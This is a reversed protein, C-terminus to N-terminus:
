ASPSQPPDIGFPDDNSTKKTKANKIRYERRSEVEGGGSVEDVLGFLQADTASISNEGEFLSRCLLVTFYWFLRAQPYYPAVLNRKDELTSAQGLEDSMSRGFFTFDHSIMMQVVMEIHRSDKLGHILDFDRQMGEFGGSGISWASDLSAKRLVIELFLKLDKQLEPNLMLEVQRPNDKQSTIQVSEGSIKQFIKNVAGILNIQGPTKEYDSISREIKEVFVWERLNRLTKLLVERSSESNLRAYIALAFGLVDIENEPKRPCVEELIPSFENVYDINAARASDFSTQIDIYVWVLRRVVREAVKLALRDNESKLNKATQLARDPTVNQVESYRIDHFLIQSHRYALSYDGLALMIAAASIAHNTAVCYMDCANGDQDSAKILDVLAELSAISGGFSNIAITIPDIGSSRLQMIDPVLANFLANDIKSNVYIVRTWNLEYGVKNRKADSMILEDFKESRSVQM